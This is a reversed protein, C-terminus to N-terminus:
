RPISNPAPAPPLPGTPRIVMDMAPAGPAPVQQAMQQVQQVPRGLNPPSQRQNQLPPNSAPMPAAPPLPRDIQVVSVSVQIGQFANSPGSFSGAIPAANEPNRSVAVTVHQAGTM